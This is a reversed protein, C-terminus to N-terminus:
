SDAWDFEDTEVYEFDYTVYISDDDNLIEEVTKYDGHTLKNYEDIFEQKSYYVGFISRDGYGYDSVITYV